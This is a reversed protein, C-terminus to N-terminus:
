SCLKKQLEAVKREFEKTNEDLKAAYSDLLTANRANIKKIDDILQYVKANAAKMEPSQWDKEITAFREQKETL